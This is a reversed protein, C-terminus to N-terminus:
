RYFNVSTNTKIYLLSEEKSKNLLEHNYGCVEKLILALRYVWYTESMQIIYGFDKSMEVIRSGEGIKDVIIITTMNYQNSGKQMIHEFRTVKDLSVETNGEGIFGIDFRIGIGPKVIATADAERKDERESLWFVKSNKRTDNKDILVFGLISLVSGLTLKEFTKGYLSKESGRITLTQAGVTLLCRLLNPWKLLLEKGEYQANLILDGYNKKVEESIDKLNADYADLYRNLGEEDRIVNQVSKGTLGLFWQLYAKKEAGLKKVHLNSKVMSTIKDEINDDHSMLKLYTIIVSTNMLLIRRQTLGETLDRVNRGSLISIVVNKIVEFGLRDILQDGSYKVLRLSKEPIFDTINM